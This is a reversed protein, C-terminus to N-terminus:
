RVPPQPANTRPLVLTLGVRATNRNFRQPLDITSQADLMFRQGYLTYQAYATLRRGLSLQYWATEILARDRSASNIGLPAGSIWASSFGLTSRRGVKGGIAASVGDIFYPTVMADLMQWGRDYTAAASWTQGIYHTLVANALINFERTTGVTEGRNLPTAKILTTGTTFRFTTRRTLSLSKRIDLGVDFNHLVAPSLGGFHANGFRYGLHYGITRNILHSYRGGVEHLVFRSVGVVGSGRASYGAEINNRQDIVHAARTEFSFGFTDATQGGTALSPVFPRTLDTGSYSGIGPFAGINYYPSRNVTEAASITTARSISYWQSASIISDSLLSSDGSYHILTNGADLTYGSKQRGGKLRLRVTEGANSGSIASADTVGQLSKSNSGDLGLFGSLSLAWPGEVDTGPPDTTLRREPPDPEQAQPQAYAASTAGLLVSLVFM